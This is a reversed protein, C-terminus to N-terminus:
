YQKEEKVVRGTEMMPVVVLVEEQEQEQEQEQEVEEALSTSENLSFNDSNQVQNGFNTFM